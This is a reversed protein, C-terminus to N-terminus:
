PGKSCCLLPGPKTRLLLLLCPRGVMQWRGERPLAAWPAHLSVPCQESDCSDYGAEHVLFLPTLTRALFYANTM